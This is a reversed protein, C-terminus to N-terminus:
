EWHGNRGDFIWIRDQPVDMMPVTQPELGLLRGQLVRLVGGHAVAITDRSLPELFRAVRESLMAYSEGGPPQFGWKDRKRRAIAEPDRARMEDLTFGEWTGFTIESLIPEVRYGAPDLGATRRVIEMTERARGLPSAVWDWESADRGSAALMAALARGNRAAQSRGHDNLPIDLGGQLRAEANYDTEGHRIHVLTVGPALRTPADARAASTSGAETM